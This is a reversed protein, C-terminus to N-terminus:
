ITVSQPLPSVTTSRLYLDSSDGPLPVRCFHVRGVAGEQLAGEVALQGPETLILRVKVWIGVSSTISVGDSHLSLSEALGSCTETFVEPRQSCKGESFAAPPPMLGEAWPPLPSSLSTKVLTPERAQGRRTM